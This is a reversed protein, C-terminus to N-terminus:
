NQASPCNALKREGVADNVPKQDYGRDATLSEFDDNMKEILNPVQSGDSEKESTVLNAWGFPLKWCQQM